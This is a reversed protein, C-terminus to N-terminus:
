IYSITLNAAGAGASVAVLGSGFYVDYIFATTSLTTDINCIPNGNDTTNNYLILTSGTGRTNIVASHIYGAGSKVTTTGNGSVNVFSYPLFMAGRGQTDMWVDVRDGAAVATPATTNAKGGVKVPNGSDVGDHAINGTVASSLAVDTVHVVRLTGANAVGSNVATDTGAMQLVNVSHVSGSVQRVDLTTSANIETSVSIGSVLDVRLNGNEDVELPRMAGGPDQGKMLGGGGGGGGVGSIFQEISYTRNNNDTLIVPIPDSRHVDLKMKAPFKVIQEPINIQPLKIEPVNVTVEPRPVKIEPIKIAPIKVEPVNVTVRPEPVVIPPITVSVEAKPVDVKPAEVKIESLAQKLEEKTLRNNDAIRNLVPELTQALDSGISSVLFKRDEENRKNRADDVAKRLAADTQRLLENPDPM